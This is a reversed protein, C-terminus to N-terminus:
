NESREAGYLREIFYQRSIRGAVTIFGKARLEDNLKRIIKYAHAKSIDLEQAVEDVRVFKHEM